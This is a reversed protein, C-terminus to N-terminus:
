GKAEYWWITERLREELRLEPQWNLSHVAKSISMAYRFDHAPRDKVFQILSEPKGMIRLITKVLDINRVEDMGALNYIGGPSGRIGATLIGRCHDGVWLWDRVNKGGGYVPIPKDQMAAKVVVPILKEPFQRPGFTNSGRTIIVDLGYTAAYGGCLMEAASKSASYPSHPNLPSRETWPPEGEVLSGYVEDTSVQVFIPKRGSDRCAMLLVHVGHVNTQIFKGPSAISNDVHSEAAFNFIIDPKDERMAEDVQPEDAIDVQRFSCRPGIADKLNDMNGAYTLADWVSVEYGRHSLLLDVFHSGIFGAGGTVVIKM